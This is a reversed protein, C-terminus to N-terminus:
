GNPMGGRLMAQEMEYQKKKEENTVILNLYIEREWPCLSEIENLSWNYKYMM